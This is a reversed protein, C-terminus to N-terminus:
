SRRRRLGFLAMILFVGFAGLIFPWRPVESIMRLPAPPLTRPVERDPPPEPSAHSPQEVSGDAQGRRAVDATAEIPAACLFVLVLSCRRMMMM